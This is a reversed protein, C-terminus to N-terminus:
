RARVIDDAALFFQETALQEAIEGVTANRNLVCGNTIRVRARDVYIPKAIAFFQEPGVSKALCILGLVRLIPNEDKLLAHLDELSGYRLTEESLKHFEGADLTWGIRYSISELRRVKSVVANFAPQSVAVDIQRTSNLREQASSESGSLLLCM